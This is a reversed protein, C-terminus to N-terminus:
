LKTQDLEEIAQHSQKLFEDIMNEYREVEKEESALIELEKLLDAAHNMGMVAVSSKAKHALKSLDNYEKNRLLVPMLERYEDIQERFLGIMELIFKSDGGSMTKLYELDTIM